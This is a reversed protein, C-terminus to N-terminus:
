AVRWNGTEKLNNAGRSLQKEKFWEVYTANIPYVTQLVNWYVFKGCPPTTVSGKYVWRNDTDLAMMLDGYPVEKVKPDDTQNLLLSEFFREIVESQADAGPTWNNVSFLIGVAANNIDNGVRKPTHVTHM